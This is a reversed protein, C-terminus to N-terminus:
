KENAGLGLQSRFDPTEHYGHDHAWEAAKTLEELVNATVLDEKMTSRHIGYGIIYVACACGAIFMILVSVIADAIASIAAGILIVMILVMGFVALHLGNKGRDIRLAQKKDLEALEEWKSRDVSCESVIPVVTSAEGTEAFDILSVGSNESQQTYPYLPTLSMSTDSSGISGNPNNM